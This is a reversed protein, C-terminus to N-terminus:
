ASWGFFDTEYVRPGDLSGVVADTWDFYLVEARAARWDAQTM